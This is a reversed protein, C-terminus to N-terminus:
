RPRTNRSFGQVMKISEYLDKRYSDDWVPQWEIGHAHGASVLAEQAKLLRDYAALTKGTLALFSDSTEEGAAKGDSVLVVTTRNKSEEVLRFYEDEAEFYAKTPAGLPCTTEAPLNDLWARVETRRLKSQQALTRMQDRIKQAKRTWIEIEEPNKPDSSEIEKPFELLARVDTFDKEVADKVYQNADTKPGLLLGIGIITVLLGLLLPLKKRMRDLEHPEADM